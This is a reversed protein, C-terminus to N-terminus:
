KFFLQKGIFVLLLIIAGFLIYRNKVEKKDLWKNVKKDFKDM